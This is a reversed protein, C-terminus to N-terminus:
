EESEYAPLTFSFTSGEGAVGTSTMWIKGHHMEVLQRVIPLGLGTGPTALVLPDEGRFFRDFVREHLGVPIGIGTDKVDVQVLGDSKHLRIEIKGDAPTYNYANDMLNDIVQRIREPDALARPLSETVSLSIQMPKHEEHSRRLADAVIEGAVEQLDVPQIALFVRGAEIRSVDLLDNVLINLRETNNKVIGLFRSQNETLAGAAGMLLVDVYGRISTMPTRLEHSVTAVFESKLRDVEVEHTIDRFISVTGLFENRWIVPALHVLVVQGNELSIQEAYTEGGHHGAPNHSWEKVTHVWTQTTKGFLGAVNEVPKGVLQAASLSLISEASVNVFSITNAPDTVLVGDAVAELIATQRSAEMQQQRLMAGLREAQDRILEYLQANNIAIAVQSGIARVMELSDENFFGIRRHFVMIAGIVDEGVVLPAVLASRHNQSTQSVVWRPDLYLDDVLVPQHHKVVWGALGEGIKLNFSNTQKGTQPDQTVYGYGARYHLMNDEPHLLMITGQEAGIAENLLSLTRSLARDLDLSSSVETLIRLLTETNHQERELEATRDVVRQELTAALKQTQGLLRANEIAITAQNALTSLIQQDNETYANFQYSQASLAGIVKGGSLMPVVLISHPTGKEGITVGGRSEAERSQLTLIPQGNTIVQGTLGQGNPLRVGSIRQGMDVIYVGDVEDLAEDRLAVIFADVPMLRSAAGHVARYIDELDLSAGIDFSVQNLIALREATALTSQYLEANKLAIASQNGITRALEIETAIFRGPLNNQLVLAYVHSGDSIPLIMLSVAEELVDRLAALKPDTRMDDTTYVTLSERLHALLPVDPLGRYMTPRGTEDPLVTLLVAQGKEELSIILCREAQLAVLLQNATLRLVQEANLSGALEASFLNLLALRKSREDLEAARRVSEEFLSANDLAVAAQSTFTTALQVIEQNYFHPDLKEAAIVGIVQGKAILPVGLWSLYPKEVLTSFRADARVDGVAIAEGTRIMENLLLSDEIDVQLGKREESDGFGRAEAVVMKEAKRLWLIATDYPIVSGMRDLLSSVLEKRQLSSTLTAAVANLAQLQGTREQTAQVLRVNELALAVQQTLSLLLAEDDPRFAASTNFNDLVLVGMNHLGAQIPVLLSSVPVRGGTAKRYKLLNEAPLNYDLAFNIEDVRRPSKEAFVRGPLGENLQYTIRLVGEDDVYNLAAVPILEEARADWQMVVGAHAPSVVRLASQLLSELIEKPSLGSLQRSFDLLLNVEQLRQRTENLLSINQLIISVQRSIQFYVQRDEPSMAPMTESDTALVAAITKQNIVVPIALFSKARLATLFPTDHWTEDEDLDISLITEGTQLCSRLPNRQGFLAEPNTDRPLNGITHVIRPGDATDQAVLSISMDFSTLVQQGLTLLAASADFQRSIAETLQLGARIHRARQNLNSVTVTHDLDKQLLNPLSRQSFSVLNKQRDIERGLETIRQQFSLRSRASTITLAAQAAFVELIEVTVADPRRGDSPADVSILGLPRDANDYVPLILMDDPQWANPAPNADQVVTLTQVDAPIVPAKDAPIFYLNGIEFEPKMLEAVSMWSQQHEQLQVFAAADIGTGAIRTLMGTAPDHLSVLVARFPTAQRIGQAVLELANELADEVRLGQLIDFLQKFTDSRRRYQEVRGTQEHAALAMQLAIAAQIGMIRLMEVRAEDFYGAQPAHLEIFGLVREQHSIPTLLVAAIGAHPIAGPADMVVPIGLELVSTQGGSLTEGAPHGLRLIISRNALGSEGSDYLCAAGCEVGAVRLSEEFVIRLLDKPNSSSSVERVYRALDPLYGARRRLVAETEGVHRANEIAVALQSAVTSATQTDPLTFLDAQRGGLLLEGIGRGGVVLPVCLASQFGLHRVLPQYPPLIRRDGSLNGSLFPRQSGMVTKRYISPKIIVQSLPERWEEPVGFISAKHAHLVGEGEDMLFVAGAEAQLLQALEQLAFGMIEDLSASSSVLSSIRRLVEVRQNRQRVQQDLLTNDLLAAVQNAVMNLLRLEDLSLPQNGQKHNSLQLFGLFCGASILPVLATDRMSAAQALDQLGLEAWVDDQRADLTTIVAQGHIRVEAPSNARVTTRYIQVFDNPLGYFPLQGELVRRQEDYLLFGLIEVNFYPALGDVLRAFLERLDRLPGVAHSLNTLGVLQTNWRQQKEYLFANRLAVAAQPTVLKLLNVEERSFSNAQVVGMELTGVLLGYALLPLGIYSGMPPLRSEVPDYKVDSFARTDPILLEQRQAVLYGAYEGFRSVKERQLLRAAGTVDSLRYPILARTSEDWVKVELFDCVVLREVNALISHVTTELSLSTAIAQGFETVTKLTAGPLDEGHQAQDADLPSEVARIVVLMSLVEGPVRYSVADVLRGNISFHAQGEAACIELFSAGPRTRRALREINPIEGELLEFWERALANIHRFRGGVEVVLVAECPADGPGGGAQVAEPLAPRIRPLVRLVLWVISFIFLGSILVGIGLFVPGQLM